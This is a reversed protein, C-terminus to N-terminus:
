GKWTNNSNMQSFKLLIKADIDLFINIQLKRKKYYSQNQYKTLASKVSQTQVDEKNMIEQYIQPILHEHFEATLDDRGCTKM